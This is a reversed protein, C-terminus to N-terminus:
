QTSYHNIRRDLERENSWSQNLASLLYFIIGALVVIALILTVKLRRESRKEAAPDAMAVAETNANM